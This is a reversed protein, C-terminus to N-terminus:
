LGVITGALYSVQQTCKIWVSTIQFVSPCSAWCSLADWSHKYPDNMPSIIVRILNSHAFIINILDLYDIQLQFHKPNWSPGPDVNNLPSDAIINSDLEDYYNICCSHVEIDLPALSPRHCYWSWDFWAYLHDRLPWSHIKSTTLWPPQHLISTYLITAMAALRDLKKYTIQFITRKMTSSMISVMKILDQSFCLTAYWGATQPQWVM